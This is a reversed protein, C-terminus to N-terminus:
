QFPQTMLSIFKQERPSRFEKLGIEEPDSRHRYSGFMQDWISLCFGYNSNTEAVVSSHHIRHMDPTVLIKQLPHDWNKINWNAHNFLATGNLAIEFLVVALPPAGLAVVFGMKLAMSLAIELPHFRLASSADLLLDSHHMRHLRWLWPVQHFVRHQWYILFDLLLVALIVELWTPFPTVNLLGWSVPPNLALDLALLPFLLRLMVTSVGTIALHQSWRHPRKAERQIKPYRWELASFILMLSSFVGLRLYGEPVGFVEM